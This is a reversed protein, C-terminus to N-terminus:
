LTGRAAYEDVAQQLIKEITDGLIKRNAPLQIAETLAKALGDFISQHDGAEISKVMWNGLPGAFQRDQLQKRVAEDLFKELSVQDLRNNLLQLVDRLLERIKDRQAPVELYNFFVHSVSFQSLKESIAEPTLWKTKVMDVIGEAIRKRNKVIINTHRRILPIPVERFLATVAFWDAVGGIMAAEFGDALIILPMRIGPFFYLCVHAAVAGSAAIALSIAGLNRRTHDRTIANDAM